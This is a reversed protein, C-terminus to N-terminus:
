LTDCTHMGLEYMHSAFTKKTCFVFKTLYNINSVVKETVEGILAYGLSKGWNM